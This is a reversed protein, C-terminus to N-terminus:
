AGDGSSHGVGEGMAAGVIGSRPRVGRLPDREAEATEGDEVDRGGPMLRHYGGGATVDHDEIALDIVVGRQSRLDLGRAARGGGELPM